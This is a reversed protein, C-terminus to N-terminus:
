GALLDGFEDHHREIFERVYPCRPVVKLGRGKVQTLAGRVLKGAVGMGRLQEPTETHLFHIADGAIRYNTFATKVGHEKTLVDLEFRSQASNERVKDASISLAAPDMMGETM